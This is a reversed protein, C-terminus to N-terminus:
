CCPKSATSRLSSRSCARGGLLSRVLFVESKGLSGTARIACSQVIPDCIM